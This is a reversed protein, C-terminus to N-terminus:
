ACHSIRPRHSRCRPLATDVRFQGDPSGAAGCPWAVSGGAALDAAVSGAVVLGVGTRVAWVPTVVRELSAVVATGRHGSDGEATAAAELAVAARDAAGLATVSPTCPCTHFMCRRSRARAAQVYHATHPRRTRIALGVSGSLCPSHLSHHESLTGEAVGLVAEEMGAVVREVDVVTAAAVM